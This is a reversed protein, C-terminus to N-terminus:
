PALPVWAEVRYVQPGDTLRLHLFRAALPSGDYALGAQEAWRLPEDFYRADDTDSTLELVAHLCGDREPLERIAGLGEREPGFADGEAITCRETSLTKGDAAPVAYVGFFVRPMEDLLPRRAESLRASWGPAPGGEEDRPRLLCFLRPRREVAFSPAPLGRMLFDEVEDSRRELEVLEERLRAVNARVARISGLPDARLAEKIDGLQMGALRYMKYMYLVSQDELEYRRYGNSEDRPPRVLGEDELYRIGQSSIGLLKALQGIEM